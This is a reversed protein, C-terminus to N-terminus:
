RPLLMAEEKVYGAGGRVEIPHALAHNISCAIRRLLPHNRMRSAYEDGIQEILEERSHVFPSREILCDLINGPVYEARILEEPTITVGLTAALDTPSAFLVTSVEPVAVFVKVVGPYIMLCSLDAEAAEAVDLYTSEADVVAIARCGHYELAWYGVSPISSRQDIGRVLVEGSSGLRLARQLVAAGFAKYVGVYVKM